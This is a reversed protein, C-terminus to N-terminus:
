PALRVRYFRSSFNSVAGFDLFNTVEGAYINSPVIFIDAFINTGGIGGSAQLANTAGPGMTFTIFMNGGLQEVSNVLLSYGYEYAGLDVATGQPRTVGNLDFAPLGSVSSAADIARSSSQLTFDFNTESTFQPNIGLLNGNASTVTATTNQLKLSAQGATGNYTLNNLYVNNTNVVTTSFSYDAIATNNTTHAGTGVKARVINNVIINNDSASAGPNAAITIEGRASSTLNDDEHNNFCTNNRITVFSTCGGGLAVGAGGNNFALNGEVLTQNTYGPDSSNQTGNFDDCIIGHGDGHTQNTGINCELNNFSINDGIIIHFEANNSTVTNWLGSDAAIPEFYHIGGSGNTYTAACSFCVNNRQEVYDSHTCHIAPGGFGYILNNYLRVHHSNCVSASTGITELGAGHLNAQSHDGELVFGDIVVYKANVFYIAQSNDPANAPVLITAKQPNQSRLVFYGNTTDSSGSISFGASSNNVAGLYVGDGVNVCVGGHTGGQNKLVTLANTITKWPTNMNTAQAAMNADNGNTAVYYNTSCSYFPPLTFVSPVAALVTLVGNSGSNTSVSSNDTVVVTYLAGNNAPTVPQTFYFNTNAGGIPVGNSYWAYTLPPAGSAEVAFYAVYGVPVTQPEPQTIISPAANVVLPVFVGLGVGIAVAMTLKM